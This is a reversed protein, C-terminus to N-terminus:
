SPKQHILFAQLQLKNMKHLMTNTTQSLKALDIKRTLHDLFSRSEKLLLLEQQNRNYQWLSRRWMKYYYSSDWINEM